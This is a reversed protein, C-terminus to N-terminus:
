YELAFFGLGRLMTYSWVDLLTVNMFL